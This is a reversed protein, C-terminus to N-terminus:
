IARDRSTSARPGELASMMARLKLRTEELEDEPESGAVIGNGAFLRGRAGEFRGCRLAIGWEGDGNSDVWGVPGSYRGRDMGELERITELADGRPTGCVAATPHLLGALELATLNEALTGRVHTALHQVNALRLLSPAADVHLGACVKELPGVLSEVALRHEVLNKESTMMGHALRADEDEDASRAVSGALVLSSVERGRRSVLLEPTAGVLGACSFTFCGPFRAALRRLLVPVDFPEESWVLVDRALVVKELPGREIRTVADAVEELWAVEGITSGAYRVRAGTRGRPAEDLVAPDDGVNTVTVEAGRSEWVTAPITLVSDTSAHDFAFSGFAVARGGIQSFADRLRAAAHAFRDEGSGVEVRAAEGSAVFGDPGHVWVFPDDLRAAISLLDEGEAAARTRVSVTTGSRNM